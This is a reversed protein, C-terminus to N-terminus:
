AARPYGLAELWDDTQRGDPTYVKVGALEFPSHGARQGRQFPRMNHWLIFLNLWNAAAQRTPFHRHAWMLPKLIANITESACSTRVVAALLGHLRDALERGVPDRGILAQLHAAARRAAPRLRVQGNDVARALRWARAVAREFLLVLEPEQFHDRADARWPGIHEDLWHMFTLLEPEQEALTNVLKAIRPHDLRALAQITHRLLWQNIAFDRIEGSRLDVIELADHLCDVWFRTQDALTMLPEALQRAKDWARVQSLHLMGGAPTPHEYNLMKGLAKQAARDLAAQLSTAADLIHWVDKQVTIQCDIGEAELLGRALDLSLPYFSAGDESVQLRVPGLGALDLVLSIAWRQGDARDEVHGSKIALSHPEVTLMMPRDSFYAEDRSLFLEHTNDPWKLAALIRGARQGDRQLLGSIFGISRSTDLAEHLGVQIPRYAMGGPFLLSLILRAVRNPGAENVRDPTQVARLEARLSDTDAPGIVASGVWDRIDYLTQRSTRFVTAAWSVIGHPRLDRPTHLLAAIFLRDALSVDQRRSRPATQGSAPLAQYIQEIPTPWAVANATATQYVRSM